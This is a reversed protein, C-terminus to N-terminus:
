SSKIQDELNDIKYFLNPTVSGLRGYDRHFYYAEFGNAFYERMATAAYPSYFLDSTITALIPYGVEEYFLFDLEPNFQPDTFNYGEIDYGEGKLRSALVKRKVVFENEIIDDGYVHQHFNEEIAHAIEHVIDDDIDKNNLQTNSVYIIGDMYAANFDNNKLHDFEGFMIYDILSLFVQPVKELLVDQLDQLDLDYEVPDKVYFKLKSDLFSKKIKKNSEILYNKM